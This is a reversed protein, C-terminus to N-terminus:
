RRLVFLLGIGTGSILLALMAAAPVLVSLGGTNPLERGERITDRIVDEKSPTGKVNGIINKNAHGTDDNNGGGTTTADEAAACAAAKCTQLAQLRSALDAPKADPYKNTLEYPDTGLNYFERTGDEYEIYKQENPSV